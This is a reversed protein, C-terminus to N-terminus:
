HELLFHGCLGRAHVQRWVRVSWLQQPIAAFSSVICDDGEGASPLPPSHEPHETYQRHSAGCPSKMSCQSMRSLVCNIIKCFFFGRCLDEMILLPDARQRGCLLHMDVDWFCVYRTSLPSIICSGCCHVGLLHTGDVHYSEQARVVAPPQQRQTIPFNCCQHFSHPLEPNARLSPCFSQFDGMVEVEVLPECAAECASARISTSSFFISQSSGRVENGFVGCRCPPPM